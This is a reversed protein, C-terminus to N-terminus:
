FRRKKTKIKGGNSHPLFNLIGNDGLNFNLIGEEALSNLWNRQENENGINNLSTLFATMDESALQEDRRRLSDLYNQANMKAEFGRMQRDSNLKAEDTNRRNIAEMNYLDTQRNFDATQLADQRNALYANRALEARAGQNDRALQSTAYQRFARNGGATDLTSRIGAAYNQNAQNVALREDFPNRRLRNSITTVPISVPSSLRRSDSLLNEAGSYDPNSLIDSLVSLGNGVVPAYRMWTPLAKSKQNTKGSSLKPVSLNDEKLDINFDPIEIDPSIGLIADDQMGFDDNWDPLVPIRAVSSKPASSM